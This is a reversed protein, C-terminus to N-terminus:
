LRCWSLPFSHLYSWFNFYSFMITLFYLAKENSLM